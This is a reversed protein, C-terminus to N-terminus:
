EVSEKYRLGYFNYWDKNQMAESLAFSQVWMKSLFENATEPTKSELFKKISKLQELMDPTTQKSQIPDALIWLETLLLFCASQWTNTNNHQFVDFFAQVEKDQFFRYLEQIKNRWQDTSLQLESWFLTQLSTGIIPEQTLNDISYSKSESPQSLIQCFYQSLRQQQHARQIMTKESATLLPTSQKSRIFSSLDSASLIKGDIDEVLSWLHWNLTADNYISIETSENSYSLHNPFCVTDADMFMTNHLWCDNVTFFMAGDDGIRTQNELLETNDWYLQNTQTIRWKFSSMAIEVKIYDLYSSNYHETIRELEDHEENTLNTYSDPISEILEDVRKWDSPNLYSKIAAKTWSEQLHEFLQQDTFKLHSTHKEILSHNWSLYQQVDNGTMTPFEISKISISLSFDFEEQATQLLNIYFADVEEKDIVFQQSNEALVGLLFAEQSTYKLAVGEPSNMLSFLAATEIIYDAQQEARTRPIWDDMFKAVLYPKQNIILRAKLAEYHLALEPDQSIEEMVSLTSTRSFTIESTEPPTVLASEEEEIVVTSHTPTTEETSKQSVQPALFRAWVITYITEGSPSEEEETELELHDAFQVLDIVWEHSQLTETVSDLTRSLAQADEPNDSQIIAAQRQVQRTIHQQTEDTIQLAYTKLDSNDQIVGKIRTRTEQFSSSLAEKFEPQLEFWLPTVDSTKIITNLTSEEKNLVWQKNPNKEIPSM